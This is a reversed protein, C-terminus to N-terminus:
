ARPLVEIAARDDAALHRPEGRVTITLPEGELLEYREGDHRLEIRLQRDRFRLGFALGDWEAPLRPDFTLEGDFDRMGAFGYVLAMWVGGTSAVHVGDIVNGAVDALDMLAAYHFYQVAKAEYGIEAALIAQVSASLSSDGTTLPDYYEFNRRKQDLSFEDGLLVMALVVDAQKLVQHRYIVLPHYNLLLPYHSTPTGDFDWM